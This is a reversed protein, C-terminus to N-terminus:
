CGNLGMTRASGTPASASCSVDCHRPCFWDTWFIPGISLAFACDAPKSSLEATNVPGVCMRLRHAQGIAGGLDPGLPSDLTSLFLHLELLRPAALVLIDAFALSAPMVRTASLSELYPLGLRFVAAWTLLTAENGEIALTRLPMGGPPVNRPIAVLHIQGVILLHRWPGVPLVIPDDSALGPTYFLSHFSTLTSFHEFLKKVAAPDQSSFSSCYGFTQLHSLLMVTDVDDVQLCCDLTLRVCLGQLDPHARVARVYGEVRLEGVLYVDTYLARHAPACLRRSALM